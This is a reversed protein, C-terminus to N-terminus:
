QGYGMARLRTLNAELGTTTGIERAAVFCAYADAYSRSLLAEVGRGYLQEFTEPAATRPTPPCPVEPEERSPLSAELADLGPEISTEIDRGDRAAEDFFRTSDLLIQECSGRLTRPASLAGHIAHCEVVADTVRLLRRLAPEGRAM